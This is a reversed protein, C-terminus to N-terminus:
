GAAFHTISQSLICMCSGNCSIKETGKGADNGNKRLSKRNRKSLYYWTKPRTQLVQELIRCKDYGSVGANNRRGKFFLVHSQSAVFKFIIKNFILKKEHAALLRNHIRTELKEHKYKKTPTNFILM